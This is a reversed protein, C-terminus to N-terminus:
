APSLPEFGRPSAVFVVALPMYIGKATIKRTWPSGKKPGIQLEDFLTMIARKRVKPDAHKGQEGLTEIVRRITDDNVETMGEQTRMETISAQVDKRAAKLEALEQEVEDIEMLGRRYLAMLRKREKEIQALRKELPRLRPEGKGLKRKVAEIVPRISRYSLIHKSLFSFVIQEAKEKSIANNPCKRGTKGL